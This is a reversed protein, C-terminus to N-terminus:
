LASEIGKRFTYEECLLKHLCEGKAKLKGINEMRKWSAAVEGISELDTQITVDGLIGADALTESIVPLKYAAALAWRQPAVTQAQPNQHVAVMMRSQALIRHRDEGWGNPARTLGVRQILDEAHYRNYSGAWLTCVDYVKDVTDLPHPNLDRHSGMPVYRLNKLDAYWKDTTWTEVCPINSYDADLYWEINLYIIRAHANPWGHWWDTAPTTFIYCNDSHVDMEDIFILPYGSLKVLQWIDSYSGYEWRPRCFIVNSM